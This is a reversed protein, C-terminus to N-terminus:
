THEDTESASEGTEDGEDDESITMPHDIEGMIENIRGAEFVENTQIDEDDDEDIAQLVNVQTINKYTGYTQKLWYINRSKVVARTSLKMFEYVDSPQNDPYGVFIAPYGRDALKGKIKRHKDDNLIAVEGFTRLYKSWKPNEGHFKEAPSQDGEKSVIINELQGATKACQTWLGRRMNHPLRAANLRSRAKGYLTAFKREIKGNMEPTYPAVFEFNIHFGKTEDV